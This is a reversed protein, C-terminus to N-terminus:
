GIESLAVLIKKDVARGYFLLLGSISQVRLIGNADLSPSNDDEAAYQVNAGYFIPTHKYPSHQPNKPATNDYNVRLNAIYDDMTLRVMHKSQFPDYNWELIIGSYM